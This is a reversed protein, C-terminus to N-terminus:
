NISYVLTNFSDAALTQNIIRGSIKLRVTRPERGSNRIVIIINGDPNRFALLDDYSGQIKLLTAGPKVFHSVHKLLYYEYNYSYSKKASDISVLSNQRWGWHSVGDRFLSINWYDYACVGNNLYHKMLDWAYNCYEWTNRGDGCEQETQYLTLDPYKEHVQQVAKKGDWQFGAGNVFAGSQSAKVTDLINPNSGNDTGFFIKVGLKDMEPGLYSIFKTLGTVTWTCSPFVQNSYFENQPMVMGINIRQKRYEKIFRAFYCAYTKFYRDEQIFMDMGPRGIQDPRIGNQYKSKNEFMAEAYHKNYKMWQPPSWPSAWLKLEPQYQQAAHIFPILTILDNNISFHNLAFDHDTEDYSYWQLSFDNAGIPMRCITFNAGESSFLEHMVSARDTPKLTKLSSWGLENFCGGFGAITQLPTETKIEVDAQSGYDFNEIVATTVFKKSQTTETWKVHVTQGYLWQGILILLSCIFNIKM